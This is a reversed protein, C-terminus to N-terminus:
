AAPTDPPPDYKAKMARLEAELANCRGALFVSQTQADDRQKTLMLIRGDIEAANM